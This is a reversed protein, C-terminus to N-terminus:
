QLEKAEDEAAPVLGAAAERGSLDSPSAYTHHIGIKFLGVLTLPRWKTYHPTHDDPCLALGLQHHEGDFLARQEFRNHGDHNVIELRCFASNSRLAAHLEERSAVAYGNAKVITEGRKIGMAAAASGPLVDLVRLGSGGSVFAPSRGRERRDSLIVIAEHLGISLLATLAALWTYPWIECVVALAGLLGALLLLKGFIRRAKRAPLEAAAMGAYGLLVPFALLSWGGSWQAGGFFMPWPLEFWGSGVGYGAPVVVLLPLAWMAQIEYAGIVKGRKGDVYLPTALKDGQMRILVAEILHVVAALAFLSPLHIDLLSRVVPRLGEIEQVAELSVALLQLLAIVGAAYAISAYRLRFLMLAATVAWVWVLTEATLLLGFGATALSILLAGAIGWLCARWVQGLASHLRMYLLKRELTVQRRYLLVTLILGMYYFPNLAMALLAEGALILGDM